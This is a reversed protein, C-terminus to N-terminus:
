ILRGANACERGTEIDTDLGELIQNPLLRENLSEERNFVKITHDLEVKMKSIHREVKSSCGNCHMSVRLVLTLCTEWTEQTKMEISVFNRLLWVYDKLNVLNGGESGVLPKSEFEDQNELSNIYFCSRSNSSLCLCDLVRGLSLKGMDCGLSRVWFIVTETIVLAPRVNHEFDLDVELASNKPRKAATV